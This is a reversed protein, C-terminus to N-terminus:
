GEYDSEELCAVFIALKLMSETSSEDDNNVEKQLRFLVVMLGDKNERSVIDEMEKYIVKLKGKVKM